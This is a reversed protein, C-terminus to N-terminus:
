DVKAGKSPGEGGGGGGNGGGGNGGGGVSPTGKANDRKKIMSAGGVQQMRDEASRNLVGVVNTSDGEEGLGEAQAGFWRTVRDPIQTILAFSRLAVQYHLFIVILMM